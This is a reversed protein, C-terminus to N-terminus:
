DNLFNGKNIHKTVYKSKAIIPAHKVFTKVAEFDSDLSMFRKFLTREYKNKMISLFINVYGLKLGKHLSIFTCFKYFLQEEEKDAYVTEPQDCKFSDIM